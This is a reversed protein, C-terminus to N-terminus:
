CHLSPNAGVSDWSGETGSCLVTIVTSLEQVGYRGYDMQAGKDASMKIGIDARIDAGKDVKLKIAM